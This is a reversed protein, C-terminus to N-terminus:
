LLIVYGFGLSIYSQGEQYDAEFSNYYKASFKLAGKPFLEYMFGVEPKIVFQWVEAQLRYMGMDTNRLTYTTGLGFNIYPRFVSETMFTYEAAFLIPVTYSDRYQIGSIAVNDFEYVAFDKRENFYNWGADVGIHINDKVAYKYEFLFGRFSPQSIYDNLDGTAFSPAYNFSLYGGGQANVFGISTAVIILLSIIKKM